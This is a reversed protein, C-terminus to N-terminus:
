RGNGPDIGDEFDYWPHEEHGRQLEVKATSPIAGLSQHVGLHNHNRYPGMTWFFHLISDTYQSIKHTNFLATCGTYSCGDDVFEGEAAGLDDEECLLRGLIGKQDFVNVVHAFIGPVLEDVSLLDIKGRQIGNPSERGLPDIIRRRTTQIHQNEASVCDDRRRYLAIGCDVTQILFPLHIIQGIEM